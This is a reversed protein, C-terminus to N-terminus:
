IWCGPDVSFFNGYEAFSANRDGGCKSFYPCSGCKEVKPPDKISEQHCVISLEKPTRTITYFKDKDVWSPEEDNPNLQCIAFLGELLSLNM